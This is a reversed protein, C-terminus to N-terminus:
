DGFSINGPNVDIMFVGFCELERLIALADPWRTGFQECKEAHWDAMVEDSFSPARDLFAGAFDLVFPRTVVTMELARLEDDHGVLEPVNCGKISTIELEKLRLYVDRERIYCAEQKHVKIALRGQETQSKVSFVTGHVGRGLEEGLELKRRAAFEQAGFLPDIEGM